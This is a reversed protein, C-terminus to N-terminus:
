PVQRFAASRNSGIVVEAQALVEALSSRMLSAVHPLERELFSGNAGILKVLEVKEDYVNVQYGRGVSTAILPVIPSERVDDAGAKFKL